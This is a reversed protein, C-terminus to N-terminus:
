LTLDVGPATLHIDAINSPTPDHTQKMLKYQNVSLDKKVPPSEWNTGANMATEAPTTTPETEKNTFRSSHVPGLPFLQVIM